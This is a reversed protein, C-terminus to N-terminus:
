FAPLIFHNLHFFLWKILFYFGFEDTFYKNVFTDDYRKMNLLFFPQFWYILVKFISIKVGKFLKTVLTGFQRRMFLNDLIAINTKIYHKNKTSTTYFAM